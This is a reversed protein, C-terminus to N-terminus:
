TNKFVYKKQLPYNYAIAVALSTVIKAIRYDTEAYHILLYVGVANLILNGTWTIIYRVGQMAISKERAAFAWYRCITFNVIGGLVTGSISAIVPDVAFYERLLIAFSFDCASAVLSAINAKLFTIVGPM